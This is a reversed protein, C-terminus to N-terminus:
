SSRVASHRDIQSVSGWTKNLFRKLDKLSQEDAAQNYGITYGDSHACSNMALIAGFPNDMSYGTTM